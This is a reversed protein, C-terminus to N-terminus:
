RWRVFWITFLFFSIAHFLAHLGLKNSEPGCPLIFLLLTYAISAQGLLTFLWLLLFCDMDVRCYEERLISYLQLFYLAAVESHLAQLFHETYSRVQLCLTRVTCFSDRLQKIHWVLKTHIKAAVTLLNQGRWTFLAMISRQPKPTM